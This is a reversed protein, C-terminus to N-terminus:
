DGELQGFVWGTAEGGHKKITVGLHVKLGHPRASGLFPDPNHLPHASFTHSLRRDSQQPEPWRNCACSARHSSAVTACRWQPQGGEPLHGLVLGLPIGGCASTAYLFVRGRRQYRFPRRGRVRKKRKLRWPTLTINDHTSKPARLM